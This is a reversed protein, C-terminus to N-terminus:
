SGKYGRLYQKNPFYNANILPDSISGLMTFSQVAGKTLGPPLYSISSNNTTNNYSIQGRLIDNM